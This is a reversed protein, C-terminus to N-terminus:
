KLLCNYQKIFVKTIKGCTGQGIKKGECSTLPMVGMMSNTLFAEEAHLLDQVTFNGENIVIHYKRALDFVAKRTIGALCRCALFPTFINNGHVFFINSRTGEAIYGRSNLIIAEDLGRKRADQMGLQYLIRSTSKIQPLMSNENQTVRAICAGFGKRYTDASPPHYKRVVVSIGTGSEAKWFTLRVYSDQFGNIKVAETIIKKLAAARYSPKLGLLPASGLIRKLHQDFYAIRRKYARMTEFVGSGYLFGPDLISVKAEERALFKGNLFIMENM